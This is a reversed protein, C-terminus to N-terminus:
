YPIPVSHGSAASRYAADVLALSRRNDAAASEPIGGSDLAALFDRVLAATATAMLDLPDSALTRAREGHWLQARGGWTVERKFFPRRTGGRVGIGLEINGGIHTEICGNSGDLRIDLYRNRGKSLRDLTIAAVRDQSFELEVLNLYDPNGPQGVRPMRARVARPEEGFFYRCLDLAHIGFELCTRRAEAGRWGAETASTVRFTQQLNAFQLTGFAASGIQALAARHIRMFRYQNNVVVQRNCARALDVIADAERLEPMFPKECLVHCGARLATEVMAFHTAPPTAVAVIDPTVSQLLSPLDRFVPFDFGAAAVHPDCGAVVRLGAVKRFAPLHIRRAAEGLGAIAITYQAATSKVPSENLAASSTRSQGSCATATRPRRM